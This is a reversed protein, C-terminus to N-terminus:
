FNIKLQLIIANKSSPMAVRELIRALLIGHVSSGPPSCDMPDCLSMVSAGSCIIANYHHTPKQQLVTHTLEVYVCIGGTSGGEWWRM